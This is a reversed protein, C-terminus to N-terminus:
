SASSRRNRWRPITPPSAAISMLPMIISWWYRASIYSKLIGCYIYSILGHSIAGSAEFNQAVSPKDLLSAYRWSMMLSRGSILRADSATILKALLAEWEEAFWALVTTSIANYMEHSNAERVRSQKLWRAERATSTAVSITNKAHRMQFSIYRLLYRLAHHRARASTPMILLRSNHAPKDRSSMAWIHRPISIVGPRTFNVLHWSRIRLSRRLIPMKLRGSCHSM